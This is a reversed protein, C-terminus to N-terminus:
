FTVQQNKAYDIVLSNIRCTKTDLDFFEVIPKELKENLEINPNEAKLNRKIILNKLDALSTNEVEGYNINASFFNSDISARALKKNPVTLADTAKKTTTTTSANKSAATPTSVTDAENESEIRLAPLNNALASLSSFSSSSSDSSFTDEISTM